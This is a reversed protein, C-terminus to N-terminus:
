STLELVFSWRCQQDTLMVLARSCMVRGGRLPLPGPSMILVDTYRTAMCASCQASAAAPIFLPRWSRSALMSGNAVEEAAPLAHSHFGTLVLM